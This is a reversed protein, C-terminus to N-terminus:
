VVLLLCLSIALWNSIWNSRYTGDASVGSTAADLSSVTAFNSQPSDPTITASKINNMTEHLDGLPADSSPPTSAINLTQSNGSPVAKSSETESLSFQSIEITIKSNEETPPMSPEENPTQSPTSSPEIPTHPLREQSPASSSKATENTPKNVLSETPQSYVKKNPAKSPLLSSEHTSTPSIPNSPGSSPGSSPVYSLRDSLEQSPLLSAEINSTRTPLISPKRSMGVTPTNTPTRTPVVTPVGTPVVTPIDSPAATPIDSPAATPIDSTAATPIDSPATTPAFTPSESPAPTAFWKEFDEAIKGDPDKVIFTNEKAYGFDSGDEKVLVTGRWPDQHYVAFYGSGRM